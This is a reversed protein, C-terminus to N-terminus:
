MEKEKFYVNPKFVEMFNGLLGKSYENKFTSHRQTGVTGAARVVYRQKFWENTTQNTLLLYLMFCTYGGVLLSLLLLFGLLLVIRPFTLFLQVIFNIATAWEQRDADQYSGLMLGSLVVVQLLFAATLLALYAAMLMLTGLYPLFYRTNLAGICNNVWVCHHDFRQVCRNCVRCHKSRAPKELSCTPCFQNRRFVVEDYSYVQLCQQLNSKTITGPDTVCSFFFFGTNVTLLGYPLLLYFWHFELELCAGLIEWSYEAFVAVELVLHLIVFTINRSQCHSHVANQTIHQLWSPVVNHFIQAVADVIHDSCLCIFVVVLLLVLTYLLFLVLFDM